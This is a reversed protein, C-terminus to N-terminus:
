DLRRQEILAPAIIGLGCVLGIWGRASGSILLLVSGILVLAGGALMVRLFITRSMRSGYDAKKERASKPM